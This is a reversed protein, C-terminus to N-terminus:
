VSDCWEGPGVGCSLSVTSNHRPGSFTQALPSVGLITYEPIRGLAKVPNRCLAPDRPSFHLGDEASEDRQGLVRSQRKHIKM